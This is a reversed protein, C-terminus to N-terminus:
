FGYTVSTGYRLSKYERGASGSTRRQRDLNFGIRGDRGFRYGAGGGYSYIYDTPGLGAPQQSSRSRYQLRQVGLRGVVDVPGFIHQSLSGSAGTQLYYPNALEYSYQVQRSADLAVKTAGLLVYTLGGAGVVGRYAPVTPDLPTFNQYGISAKGAILAFPDLEVGGTVQTSDSDRVPSFEFRDQEREALV